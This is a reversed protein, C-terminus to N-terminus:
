LFVHADEGKFFASRVASNMMLNAVTRELTEIRKEVLESHANQFLTDTCSVALDSVAIHSSRSHPVILTQAKALLGGSGATCVRGM